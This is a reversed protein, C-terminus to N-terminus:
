EPFPVAADGFEIFEITETKREVLKINWSDGRLSTQYFKYENGAQSIGEKIKSNPQFPALVLDGVKLDLDHLKKLGTKSYYGIAASQHYNGDEWGIVYTVVEAGDPLFKNDEISEIRGVLNFLNEKPM